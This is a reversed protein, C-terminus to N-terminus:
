RDKKLADALAFQKAGAVGLNSSYSGGTTVRLAAQGYKEKIIGKSEMTPNVFRENWLLVFATKVAQQVLTPDSSARSRVIV